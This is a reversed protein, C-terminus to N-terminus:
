RIITVKEKISFHTKMLNKIKERYLIEYNYM